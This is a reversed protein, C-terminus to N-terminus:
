GQPIRPKDLSLGGKGREYCGSSEMILPRHPGEKHDEENRQAGRQQRGEAAVGVGVAQLCDLGVMAHVRAASFSWPQAQPAERRPAKRAPAIPLPFVLQHNGPNM